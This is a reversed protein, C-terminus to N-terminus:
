SEKVLEIKDAKKQWNEKTKKSDSPWGRTNVVCHSITKEIINKATYPKANETKWIINQLM